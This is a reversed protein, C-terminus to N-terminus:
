DDKQRNLINKLYVIGEGALIAFINLAFYHYRNQSEVLIHMAITALLLLIILWEKSFKENLYIPIATIVLILVVLYYINTIIIINDDFRNKESFKENWSIGYNDNGWLEAIKKVFFSLIRPPNSMCMNELRKLAIQLCENHAGSAAEEGIDQNYHYREFLYNMDDSSYSGQSQENLGVMLNYGYSVGSSATKLGITNEIGATLLKGAMMYCLLIVFFKKLNTFVKVSQERVLLMYMGMAIVLLLAMPRVFATVALLIGEGVCYIYTYAKGNSVFKYFYWVCSMLLFTFLAESGLITSYQIQSPWFTVFVLAFLAEKMGRLCYVIKYVLWCTLMNLVINFVLGVSVSNGFIRYIIALVSPYGIVHPFLAIYDVPLSGNQKGALISAIEHYLEYDSGQEIPYCFMWVIRVIFGMLLIGSLLMWQTSRKIQKQVNSHKERWIWMGFCLMVTYVLLIGQVTRPDSVYSFNLVESAFFVTLVGLVVISFIYFIM